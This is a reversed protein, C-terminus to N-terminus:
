VTGVVIYFFTRIELGLDANFLSFFIFYVSFIQGLDYKIICLLFTRVQSTRCGQKVLGM